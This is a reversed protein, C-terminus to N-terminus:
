SCSSEITPYETLIKALYCVVSQQDMRTTGTGIYVMERIATVIVKALEARRATSLHYYRFDKAYSLKDQVIARSCSASKDKSPKRKKKKSAKRRSAATSEPTAEMNKTYTKVAYKIGSM